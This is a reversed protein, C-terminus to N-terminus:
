KDFHLNKQKTFSLTPRVIMNVMSSLITLTNQARRGMEKLCINNQHKNKSGCWDVNWEFIPTWRITTNFNPM